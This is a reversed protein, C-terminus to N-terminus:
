PLPEGDLYRAEGPGFIVPVGRGPCPEGRLEYFLRESTVFTPDYGQKLEATLHVLEEATPTTM